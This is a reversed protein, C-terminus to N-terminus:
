LAKKDSNSGAYELVTCKEAKFGRMDKVKGM